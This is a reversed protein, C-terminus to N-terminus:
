GPGSVGLSSARAEDSEDSRADGENAMVLYERGDGARYARIADPQYLGRALVSRLETRTPGSNGSLYDRDTPDIENGAESFDKLGLSFVRTLEAGAIDLVAVANNEQLSVYATRSDGSVTIYEPEIDVSALKGPTM